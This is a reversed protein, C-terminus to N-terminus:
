RSSLSAAHATSSSDPGLVRWTVGSAILGLTVAAAVWWRQSLSPPRLAPRGLVDAPPPAVFVQEYTTAAREIGARVKAIRRRERLTARAATVVRVVEALAPRALPEKALMALMLRELQRPIEPWRDRPRPPPESVHLELLETSSRSPFPPAGLLLEFMVVGLSYIDSRPTVPEGIVQEPAVYRPTGAIVDSMPDGTGMIRAVGWDLVKIKQALGPRPDVLFVNDLKLDRHVIGVGHAAGLVSCLALVIEFAEDYTIPGDDLREAVTQGDLRDM